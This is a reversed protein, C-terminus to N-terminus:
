KVIKDYPMKEELVGKQVLWAQIEDIEEESPIYNVVFYPLKYSGQLVEAINCSTFFIENCSEPDTNIQIAAKECANLFRERLTPDQEMLSNDLATVTESFELVTDDAIVRAGQLEALSVLTEPLLAAELEGSLLLQLRIPIQKIEQSAIENETFGYHELIKEQMYEINTAYAIGVEVGKLEAVSKIESEPSVMIAFMRNEKNAIYPSNIISIDVRGNIMTIANIPDNFYGDIEGAQLAADQELASNFSILEIDLNEEAFYGNGEAVFIPLASVLPLVGIKIDTVAEGATNNESTKSCGAVSILISSMIMLSILLYHFFRSKM